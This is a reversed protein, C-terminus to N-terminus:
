RRLRPLLFGTRQQHVSFDAAFAGALIQEERLAKIIYNTLLIVFAFVARWEGVVLGTGAVGLLVGSYIPHRLRAYPGTRILQHDVKLVVKDSWYQGLHIRAWLALLIGLIALTFGLYVISIDRPLFRRGLVGAAAWRAFLLGFTIALIILRFIRHFQPESTREPRNRAGGIFWWYIGFGLWIWALLDLLRAQTM